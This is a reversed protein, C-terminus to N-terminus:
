ICYKLLKQENKEGSLDIVKGNIASIMSFINEASHPPSFLYGQIEDVAVEQMITELQEDREIGEVVISLGLQKSMQVINKLLTLSKKNTNIDIVFSRDIKVKHLPLSHLYSLSSYGTGFDDLSIRIGLDCLEHLITRTKGMDDLMVSETVELELRSASLGSDALAAKVTKVIDGRKSQITSLNVAVRISSPWRKCEYCAERLIWEGIDTILGMEEAVPIFVSPPVIGLTPHSWRILAECTTIRKSRVDVLPQFYARFEDNKLARRLDNELGLRAEMQIGMDPKYFKWMGKGDDKSRYLALDANRLLTDANAVGDITTAIGISAGVVIEHGGARFPENLADVVIGALASAEEKCRLEPLLIVFEDGGFRSLPYNGGSVSKLREAISRLLEDGVPHGLSDNVQKFEDVDLVLVACNRHKDCKILANNMQVRFYARNPLGTLSDYRAMHKIKRDTEVRKTIDEFLMVLGADENHQFSFRLITQAQMGVQISPIKSSGKHDKIHNVLRRSDKASLSNNKVCHAFLDPLSESASSALPVGLLDSALENYVVLRSDENFMCLGQPMNNLAADLQNALKGIKNRGIVAALLTNRLRDAISKAGAIFPVLMAALISFYWDQHSLLGAITPVFFCALQVNVLRSIGFNRGFIGIMNVLASSISILQVITDNVYFFSFFCWFGLIGSSVAAGATYRREWIEMQPRDTISSGETDFQCADLWRLMGVIAFSIACLYLPTASTKWATAFILVSTGLTGMLLSKKESFLSAVLSIYIENPVWKEEVPNNFHDNKNLDCVGTLWVTVRYHSRLRFTFLDFLQTKENILLLIGCGFPSINLLEIADNARWAYGYGYAAPWKIALVKIM